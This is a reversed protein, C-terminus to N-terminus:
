LNIEYSFGHASHIPYEPRLLERIIAKQSHMEEELEAKTVEKDKSFLGGM